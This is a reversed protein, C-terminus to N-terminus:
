QNEKNVKILETKFSHNALDTKAKNIEDLSSLPGVRV